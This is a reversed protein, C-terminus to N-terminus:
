KKAAFFAVGGLVVIAVGGIAIYKTKLSKKNKLDTGDNKEKNKQNLENQKANDVTKIKELEENNVKELKNSDLKEDSVKNLDEEVNSQTVASAGNSSTNTTASSIKNYTRANGSQVSNNTNGTNRNTFESKSLRSIVDGLITNTKTENNKKSVIANKIINQKAEEELQQKESKKEAEVEIITKVTEKPQTNMLKKTDSYYIEANFQSKGAQLAEVELFAIYPNDYSTYYKKIKLNQSKEVNAIQLMYNIPVSYKLTVTEGVKIKHYNSYEVIAYAKTNLIGCMLLMILSAIIISINKKNLIKVM